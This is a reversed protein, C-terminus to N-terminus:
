RNSAAHKEAAELLDKFATHRKTKRAVEKARKAEDKLNKAWTLRIEEKQMQAKIIPLLTRIFDRNFIPDIEEERMMLRVADLPVLNPDSWLLRWFHEDAFYQGKKCEKIYETCIANLEKDPHRLGVVVMQNTLDRLHRAHQLYYWVKEITGDALPSAEKYIRYYKISSKLKNIFSRLEGEIISPNPRKPSAPTQYADLLKNGEKRLWKDSCFNFQEESIRGEELWKGLLQHKEEFNLGLLAKNQEESLNTRAM